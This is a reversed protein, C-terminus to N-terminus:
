NRQLITLCRKVSHALSGQHGSQYKPLFGKSIKITHIKGFSGSKIHKSEEFPFIFHEKPFMQHAATPLVPPVLFQQEYFSQAIPRLSPYQKLKDESCFSQQIYEENNGTAFIDDNAHDSIVDRIRAAEDILILITYIKSCKSSIENALNAFGNSDEGFDSRLQALINEQTLLEKLDDYLLYGGRAYRNTEEIIKARKKVRLVLQSKLHPSPEGGSSRAKDKSSMLLAAPAYVADGVLSPASYSPEAVQPLVLQNM